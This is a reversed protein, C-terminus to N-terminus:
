EIVIDAGPIQVGRAVLCRSIGEIYDLWEGRRVQESKNLDITASENLELSHVNLQGDNRPAAAVTIGRNIAFPLVFGDNYDTHEGILNIRGPAHFLRADNRFRNKFTQRLSGAADSM